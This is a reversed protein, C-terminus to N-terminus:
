FIKTTEIEEKGEWINKDQDSLYELTYTAPKYIVEKVKKIKGNSGIQYTIDTRTGRFSSPNYDTIDIDRNTEPKIHYIILNMDATIIFQKLFVNGKHAQDTFSFSTEIADIYDGSKTATIFFTCSLAPHLGYIMGALYDGTSPNFRRNIYYRDPINGTPKTLHWDLWTNAKIKGEWKDIPFYVARQPPGQKSQLRAGYFPVATIYDGMQFFAEEVTQTRYAQSYCCLASINTLVILIAKKM